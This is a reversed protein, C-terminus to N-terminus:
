PSEREVPMEVTSTIVPHFLDGILPTVPAYPYRVTVGYLCGAEMNPCPTVTIDSNTLGLGVSEGIAAQRIANADQNVIAVRAGARAANTVTSFAYIARGGDFIGIFIVLFVPAILAFEVMSQGRPWRARNSLQRM